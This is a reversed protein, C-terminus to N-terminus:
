LLRTSYATRKDRSLPYRPPPSSYQSKTETPHGQIGFGTPVGNGRVYEDREIRGVATSM